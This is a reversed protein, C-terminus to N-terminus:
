GQKRRRRTMFGLAALGAAFLAYTEPEPIPAAAALADIEGEGPSFGPVGGGVLRDGSSVAFYNYAGAFEWQTTWDDANKMVGVDDVGKTWVKTIHGLECATSSFTSTACGWIRFEFPEFPEAGPGSNTLTWGHDIAPIAIVGSLAVNSHMVIAADFQAWQHDATAMAAAPTLGPSLISYSTGDANGTEGNGGNDYTLFTTPTVTGNIVTATDVLTAGGIVTQAQGATALAALAAAFAVRNLM